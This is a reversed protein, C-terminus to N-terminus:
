MEENIKHKNNGKDSCFPIKINLFLDKLVALVAWCSISTALAFRLDINTYKLYWNYANGM